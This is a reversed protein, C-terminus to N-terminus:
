YDRVLSAKGEYSGSSNLRTALYSIEMAGRKVTATALYSRTETQGRFEITNRNIRRGNIPIGDWRGRLFGEQNEDLSLVTNGIEGTSNEYSGRWEGTVSRWTDEDAVVPSTSVLLYFLSLFFASSIYFVNALKM